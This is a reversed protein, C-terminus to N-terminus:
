SYVIFETIGRKKLYEVILARVDVICSPHLFDISYNNNSLKKERLVFIMSHDLKQFISIVKENSTIGHYTGSTTYLLILSIGFIAVSIITVTSAGNSMAKILMAILAVLSLLAGTLHTISNIPERFKKYM